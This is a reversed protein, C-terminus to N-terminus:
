RSNDALKEQQLKDRVKMLVKGYHNEGRRDRGCGWFYDYQSSEVLRSDGTALLKDAIEPYTKCKTYVARTMYTVKVKRWDKRLKRFRSRGMKRAKKPHPAQRIKEQEQESEFKMAQFYHEVSPWERDELFFSHKSFAGLEETVDARSLYISNVDTEPFLGNGM